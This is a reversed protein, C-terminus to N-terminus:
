TDISTDLHKSVTISYNMSKGMNRLREKFAETDPGSSGREGVDQDLTSLFDQNFRLESLFEENQLFM